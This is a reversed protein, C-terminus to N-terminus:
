GGPWPTPGLTGPSEEIGKYTIVRHWLLEWGGAEWCNRVIPDVCSVDTASTRPMSAAAKTERCGTRSPWFRTELTRLDTQASGNCGAGM